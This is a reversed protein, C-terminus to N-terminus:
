WELDWTITYNTGNLTSSGTSGGNGYAGTGNGVLWYQGAGAADYVAIIAFRTSNTLDTQSVNTGGTCYTDKISQAPTLDGGFGPVKEDVSFSKVKGSITITNEATVTVKTDFTIYGSNM